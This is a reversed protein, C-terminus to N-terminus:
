CHFAQMILKLPRPKQKCSQVVTMVLNRRLTVLERKRLTLCPVSMAIIAALPRSKNADLDAEENQLAVIDYQDFSLTALAIAAKNKVSFDYSVKLNEKADAKNESLESLRYSIM